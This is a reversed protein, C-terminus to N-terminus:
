EKVRKFPMTRKFSPFKSIISRSVKKRDNNTNRWNKKVQKKFSYDKRM